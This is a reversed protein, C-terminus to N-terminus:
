RFDPPTKDFEQYHRSLHNYVGKKDSSPIDVGGRAGLLAAMAASVGKWVTQFNSAKHHPLKYSVKIDPNKSDFWTSMVKLKTVDAQKIEEQGDWKTDLSSLNYSKFPVVGKMMYRTEELKQLLNDGRNILDQNLKNDITVVDDRHKLKNKDIISIIYKAAKASLNCTERLANELEREDKADEISSKVKIINARINSPFTVLSIEWLSIKNLHRRKKKDDWVIADTIIKGTKDKLPEWGISLGKLAGMKLLSYGEKAQQVNLDFKGNVRLGTNNEVLQEWIGIPKKADHQWLFAIGNGNRGNQEITEKFAGNSVVDGHSDPKGDFTSGYGIFTGDEQIDDTKINFPVDLYEQM